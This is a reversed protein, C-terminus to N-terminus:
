LKSQENEKQYRESMAKWSREQIDWNLRFDESKLSRPALEAKALTQGDVSLVDYVLVYNGNNSVVLAEKGIYHALESSPIKKFIAEGYTQIEKSKDWYREVLHQKSLDNLEKHKQILFAQDIAAVESYCPDKLDCTVRYHYSLSAKVRKLFEQTVALQGLGTGQVKISDMNLSGWPTCLAAPLTGGMELFLGKKTSHYNHFPEASGPSDDWKNTINLDAAKRATQHFIAKIKQAAVFLQYEGSQEIYEELAKQKQDSSQDMEMASACFVFVVSFLVLQKM